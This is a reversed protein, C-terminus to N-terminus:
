ENITEKIAKCIALPAEDIHYSKKGSIVDTELMIRSNDIKIYFHLNAKKACMMAQNMDTTPSWSDVPLQDDYMVFHQEDNITSENLTCVQMEWGMVKEAMYRDLEENM